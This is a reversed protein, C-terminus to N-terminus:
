SKKRRLHHKASRSRLHKARRPPVPGGALGKEANLRHTAPENPPQETAPPAKPSETTLHEARQPPKPLETTLHEATLPEKAVGRIIFGAIAYTTIYDYSLWADGSHAGWDAGMSNRAIFFHRNRDYGTLLMAHYGAEKLPLDNNRDDLLVPIVHDPG